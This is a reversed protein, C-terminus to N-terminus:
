AIAELAEEVSRVVLAKGGAANILDIQHRQAPTPYTKPYPVKVELAVYRGGSTCIILDPTGVAAV